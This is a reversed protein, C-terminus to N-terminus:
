EPVISGVTMGLGGAGVLLAFEIYKWGYLNPGPSM